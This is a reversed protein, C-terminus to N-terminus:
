SWGPHMGLICIGFISILIVKTRMPMDNAKMTNVMGCLHTSKKKGVNNLLFSMLIKVLIKTTYAQRLPILIASNATAMVLCNQWM